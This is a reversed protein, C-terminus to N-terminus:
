GIVLCEILVMSLVGDVWRWVIIVFDNVVWTVNNSVCYYGNSLFWCGMTSGVAM